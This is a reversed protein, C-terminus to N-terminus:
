KGEIFFDFRVDFYTPVRKKSIVIKYDPKGDGNLDKGDECEQWEAPRFKWQRVAEWAASRFDKAFRGGTSIAGPADAVDVVVGAADLSVRVVISAAGFKAIRAAEPYSPHKLAGIPTPAV